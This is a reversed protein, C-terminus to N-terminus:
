NQACIFASEFWKGEKVGFNSIGKTPTIWGRNCYNIQREDMDPLSMFNRSSLWIFMKCTSWMKIAVVMNKM